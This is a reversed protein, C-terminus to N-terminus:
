DRIRRSTKEKCKHLYDNLNGFDVGRKRGEYDVSVPGQGTVFNNSFDLRCTEVRMAELQECRGNPRVFCTVNLYQKYIDTNTTKYVRRKYVDDFNQCFVTAEVADTSPNVGVSKLCSPYRWAFMTTYTTVLRSHDRLKPNNSHLTAALIPLHLALLCVDPNLSLRGTTEDYKFEPVVTALYEYSSIDLHFEKEAFHRGNPFIVEITTKFEAFTEDFNDDDIVDGLQLRQKLVQCFKRTQVGTNKWQKTRVDMKFTPAMSKLFNTLDDMSEFPNKEQNETALGLNEFLTEVNQAGNKVLNIEIFTVKDLIDFLKREADEQSLNELQQLKDISTALNDGHLRHYAERWIEPEFDVRIEPWQSDFTAREGKKEERAREREAKLAANRAM